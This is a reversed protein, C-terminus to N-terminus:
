LETGLLPLDAAPEASREEARQRVLAPIHWGRATRLPAAPAPLRTIDVPHEPDAMRLKLLPVLSQGGALVKAEGGHDALLELVDAPSRPAHYAFRGPKM